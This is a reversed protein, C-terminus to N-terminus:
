LSSLLLTLSKFYSVLLAFGSKCMVSSLRSAKLNHTTYIM